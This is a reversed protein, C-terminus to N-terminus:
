SNDQLSDLYRRMVPILEKPWISKGDSHFKYDFLEELDEVTYDALIRQIYMQLQKPISSEVVGTANAVRRYIERLNIIEDPNYCAICMALYKPGYLYIHGFNNIVWDYYFKYETDEMTYM